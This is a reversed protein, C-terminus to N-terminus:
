MEQEKMLLEVKERGRSMGEFPARLKDVEGVRIQM